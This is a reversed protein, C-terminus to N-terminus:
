NTQNFRCAGLGMRHGDGQVALFHRGFDIGLAFCLIHRVARHLVNSFYQTQLDARHRLQIIQQSKQLGTGIGGHGLVQGRDLGVALTIPYDSPCERQLVPTKWRFQLLLM